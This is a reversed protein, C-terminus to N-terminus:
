KSITENLPHRPERHQRYSSSPTGCSTDWCAFTQVSQIRGFVPKHLRTENKQASKNRRLTKQGIVVSRAVGHTVSPLNENARRGFDSCCRCVPRMWRVVAAASTLDSCLYFVAGVFDKNRPVTPAPRLVVLLLPGQRRNEM